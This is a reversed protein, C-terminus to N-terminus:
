WLIRSSDTGNVGGSSTLPTHYTSDTVGGRGGSWWGQSWSCSSAENFAVGRV